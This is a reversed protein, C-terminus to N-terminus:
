WRWDQKPVFLRKEEVTLEAADVITDCVVGLKSQLETYRKESKEFAKRWETSVSEEHKLQFKLLEIEAKLKKKTTM